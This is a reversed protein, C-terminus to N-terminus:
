SPELAVDAVLVVDQGGVERGVVHVRHDDVALRESDDEADGGEVGVSGCLDGGRIGEGGNRHGAGRRPTWLAWCRRSCVAPRVEVAAAAVTGQM